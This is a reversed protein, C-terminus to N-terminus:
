EWKVKEPKDLVYCGIGIADAIDDDEIRLQFRDNVYSITREKRVERYKNTLYSTSKGPYRDMIVSKEEKTLPENGIAKQWAIPPVSATEQVGCYKATGILCGQIMALNVVTKVNNGYFPSEIILRDVPFDQYVYRFERVIAGLKYSILRDNLNFKGHAKLDKGDFHAWAVSKTSSDIAIFDNNIIGELM